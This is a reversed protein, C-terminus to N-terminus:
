VKREPPEVVVNILLMTVLVVCLKVADMYQECYVKYMVLVLLVCVSLLSVVTILVFLWEFANLLTRSIVTEVKEKIPLDKLEVKTRKARLSSAM